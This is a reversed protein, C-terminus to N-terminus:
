NERLNEAPNVLESIIIKLNISGMTIELPVRMLLYLFEIIGITLTL